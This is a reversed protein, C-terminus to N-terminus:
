QGCNQRNVSVHADHEDKRQEANARVHAGLAFIAGAFIALIRLASSIKIKYTCQKKQKEKVGPTRSICTAKANTENLDRNGYNTHSHYSLSHSESEPRFDFRM